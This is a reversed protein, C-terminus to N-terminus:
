DLNATIVARSPALWRFEAEPYAPNDLAAVYPRLPDVDIGNIPTRRALDERKMVRALSPSRSPVEYIADDGDRWLEKFRGAFKHPNRSPKYVERSQAGGIMVARVGFSKLWLEGIEDEHGNSAEGSYLQYVVVPILYNTVGQDFGGNLQPTDNFASLWFGVSGPVFVRQGKMNRDFWQAAEYEVSGHIDIPRDRYRSYTRYTKAQFFCFLLFGLLVVVRERRDLRAALPRLSFVALLAIGMEVELQYRHPQPLIAVNFWMALLVIAALPITFFLA